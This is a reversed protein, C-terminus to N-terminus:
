VGRGARHVIGAHTEHGPQYGAALRHEAVDAAHHLLPLVRAADLLAAEEVVGRAGGHGARGDGRLGHRAQDQGGVDVGHVLAARVHLPHVVRHLRAKRREHAHRRGGDRLRAHVERRAARSRVQEDQLVHDGREGPVQAPRDPAVNDDEPADLVRGDQVHRRDLRQLLVPVDHLQEVDHRAARAPRVRPADHALVVRRVEGRENLLVARLADGEQARVVGVRLDPGHLVEARQVADEALPAGVGHVVRVADLGESLQGDVHRALRAVHGDVGDGDGEVLDAARLAAAGDEQGGGGEEALLLEELGGGVDGRVDGGVDGRLGRAAAHRGRLRAAGGECGLEEVSEAREAPGLHDAVTAHRRRRRSRRLCLAVVGRRRRRRRRLLLRRGVPVALDPHLVLHQRRRRRLRLACAHRPEHVHAERRQLRRVKHREQPRDAHPHRGPRRARRLAIRRRVDDGGEVHVVAVEEARHPEREGGRKGVVGHGVEEVRELGDERLELGDLGCLEGLAALVLLIALVGARVLVARRLLAALAAVAAAAAPAALAAAALHHRLRAVGGGVARRGLRERRLRLPPALLLLLLRLLLLRAAVLTRSRELLPPLRLRVVHEPHLPLLAESGHARREVRRPAAHRQRRRTHRVVRDHHRRRLQAQLAPLPRVVLPALHQVDHLLQAAVRERRVQRHHRRGPVRLGTEEHEHEQWALLILLLITPEDEPAALVALVTRAVVERHRQRRPLHCPTLVQAEDLRHQLTHRPEGVHPGDVQGSRGDRRHLSLELRRGQLRHHHLAQLARRAGVPREREAQLAAPRVPVERHLRVHELPLRAAARVHPEVGIPELLVGGGAKPDVVVLARGGAQVGRRRRRRLRRRVRRLLLHRPGRVDRRPQRPADRDVQAVAVHRHFRTAPGVAADHEVPRVGDLAQAPQGVADVLVLLLRRVLLVPLLGPRLLNSRLLGGSCSAVVGAVRSGGNGLVVLLTNVAARRLRRRRRRHRVGGLSGSLGSISSSRRGRLLCHRLLRRRGLELGHREGHREAPLRRSRRRRDVARQGEPCVQLCERLLLPTRRRLVPHQRQERAPVVARHRRQLHHRAPALDAEHVEVAVRVCRLLHHRLHAADRLAQVAHRGVRLREVDHRERPDLLQNRACGTHRARVPRHQVAHEHEADSLHHGFAGAVGRQERAVVDALDRRLRERVQRRQVLQLLQEHHPRQDRVRLGLDHLHQLLVAEKLQRLHVAGSVAAGNELRVVRNELDVLTRQRLRQGVERLCTDVLGDRCRHLADRHVHVLRTVCDEHRRRERPCEHTRKVRRRALLFFGNTCCFFDRDTM